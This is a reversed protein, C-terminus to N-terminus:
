TDYFIDFNLGHVNRWQQKRLLPDHRKNERKWIIEKFLMDTNNLMDSLIINLKKGVRWINPIYVYYKIDRSATNVLLIVPINKHTINIYIYLM